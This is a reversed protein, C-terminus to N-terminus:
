TRAALPHAFRYGHTVDAARGHSEHVASWRRLSSRHLRGVLHYGDADVALEEATVRRSLATRMTGPAIGFLGALEVLTRVPLVPPDLGLLVSLVLSRANFPRM